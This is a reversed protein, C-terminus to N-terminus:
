GFGREKYSEVEVEGDGVFGGGGDRLGGGARRVFIGFEGVLREEVRMTVGGQQVEQRIVQSLFDAERTRM